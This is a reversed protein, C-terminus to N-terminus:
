REGLRGCWLAFMLIAFLAHGHDQQRAAHEAWIAEVAERRLYDGAPSDHRRLEDFLLDRMAAQRMWGELPINFGAKPRELFRDSFTGRMSERLIHKRVRGRHLKASGPLNACFAVLEPDLFPVRVELGHAMSMRDVKVLMDNPLYFTTDAHLWAGLRGASAPAENLAGAYRGLADFAACRERFAQTYLSNKLEEGCALRWSCHDRGPGAEAGRVFRTAVQHLNYKRDAMPIRHALPAIIQRRLPGPLMRYYRAWESARYTEYGALIEDAGDGALVVKVHKATMRSLLYVPLMSSDATPEDMHRSLEPLLAVSDLDLVEEALDIGLTAAAERAYPREDYANEKFGASFARLRSGGARFAAASVASSDLGGSLFLGVPVDSVLQRQVVRDFLARFEELLDGFARDNPQKAYPITWYQVHRMGHKDVLAFHGPLLQRVATFATLPAACYSFSFFADLGEDSIERSIRPDRVIAKAESGFHLRRGDDAYFLPKVGLPDRALFLRKESADWLAFAFIGSLRKLCDTGWALYARAIVETDGQTQFTHGLAVLEERLARFNYIEGNYTIAIRDGEVRLPQDATPRPDLIALRRHGLGISGRVYVGQADPGRHALSDTMSQVLERSAEEGGYEFLGAIGCM